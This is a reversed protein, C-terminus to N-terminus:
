EDDEEEDEDGASEIETKPLPFDGQIQGCELCYAFRLYDGGGLGIDSPVYGNHPFTENPFLENETNFHSYSTVSCMDSTKADIDLVRDTNCRQCRLM